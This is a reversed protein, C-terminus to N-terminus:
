AAFHNTIREEIKAGLAEAEAILSSPISIDVAGYGDNFLSEAVVLAGSMVAFRGAIVAQKGEKQLVKWEKVTLKM